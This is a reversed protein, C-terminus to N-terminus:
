NGLSRRSRTVGFLPLFDLGTKGMIKCIRQVPWRKRELAATLNPFHDL